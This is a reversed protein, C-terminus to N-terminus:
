TSFLATIGRGIEEWIGLINVGYSAGFFSNYLTLQWHLPRHATNTVIDNYEIDHYIADHSLSM